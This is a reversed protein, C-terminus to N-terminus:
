IEKKLYKIYIQITKYFGLTSKWVDFEMEFRELDVNQTRKYLQRMKYYYTRLAYDIQGLVHMIICTLIFSLLIITILHENM